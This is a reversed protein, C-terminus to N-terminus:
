REGAGLIARWWDRAQSSLLMRRDMRRRADGPQKSNGCICLGTRPQDCPEGKSHSHERGRGKWSLKFLKVRPHSAM